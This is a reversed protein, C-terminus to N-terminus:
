RDGSLLQLGKRWQKHIAWWARKITWLMGVRRRSWRFFNDPSATAFPDGFSDARSGLQRYLYRAREGIPRGNAFQGYAYPWGKTEHYGAAELLRGYRRFIEAAGGVNSMTLRENYRTVADPREAEFGSFRFFRGL